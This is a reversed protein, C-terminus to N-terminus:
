ILKKVLKWMDEKSIKDFLNNDVILKYITLGDITDHEILDSLNFNNCEILLKLTINNFFFDNYEIIDILAQKDYINNILYKYLQIYNYELCSLIIWRRYTDEFLSLYLYDGIPMPCKESWHYKNKTLGIEYFYPKIISILDTNIIVM